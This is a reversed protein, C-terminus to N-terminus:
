LIVLQSAQGRGRGEGFPFGLGWSAGPTIIVPMQPAEKKSALQNRACISMQKGLKLLCFSELALDENESALEPRMKMLLEAVIM